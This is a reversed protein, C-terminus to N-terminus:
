HLLKIIEKKSCPQLKSNLHREEKGDRNPHQLNQLFLHSWIWAARPSPKALEPVYEQLGGENLSSAMLVSNYNKPGAERKNIESALSHSCILTTFVTFKSPCSKKPFRTLKLLSSSTIKSKVTTVLDTGLQYLKVLVTKQEKIFGKGKGGAALYFFWMFWCCQCYMCFVWKELGKWNTHISANYIHM